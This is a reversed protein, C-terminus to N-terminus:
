NFYQNLLDRFFDIVVEEPSGSILEYGGFRYVAYGKLKLQRDGAVMKSYLKPSSKDGNSYHQKGDVEIVIRMNSPLLMLFDMRQRELRAQGNLKKITYPDYHLYVQPILAPFKGDESSFNQFYINFLKEEVESGLTKQLRTYLKKEAEEYTSIEEKEMWWNVLSNWMVGDSLIPKDYVLCYEGNKVIKINNELSDTLVIEPKPGDAAFILNKISGKPGSKINFVDYIPRDSVYNVIQFQYGDKEIYRNIIELCIEQEDDDYNKRISPKLIQNLFKLFVQDTVNLIDLYERYLYNEDWDHNLVMHKKIDEKASYCRRDTSKMENLPWINNLFTILDTRGTIKFPLALLEDLLETRTIETITNVM